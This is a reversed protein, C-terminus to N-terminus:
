LVVNTRGIAEALTINEKRLTIFTWVVAGLYFLIVGTFPCTMETVTSVFSIVGVVVTTVFM